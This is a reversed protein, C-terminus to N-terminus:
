MDTKYKARQNVMDVGADNRSRLDLLKRKAESYSKGYVYQYIAKVNPRHDRLLRGEWRDDKRKYINERRRPM